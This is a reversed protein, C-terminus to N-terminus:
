RKGGELERHHVEIDFEEGLRKALTSAVYASRHQGGTCGFAVVLHNRNGKQLSKTLYDRLFRETQELYEVAEEKDNLWSIIEKDLGTFYRLEVVWYPNPLVRCDILTDCEPIGYKFGFSLFVIPSAFSGDSM